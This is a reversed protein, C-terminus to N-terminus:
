FNEYIDGLDFSLSFRLTRELPNNLDSANMLYSLDINFSKAKLGGGLTFHQRNGKIESEHFYGARIAFANNYLYEAGISYTFEKFEESSGGPADGFSTFIGEVWGVNTPDNGEVIINPTNPDNDHDEYIPPTPVLLKATEFTVAVTNYDDLIFDFGAGLRLRTPLFNDDGSATYSVKPGLNSINFGARIRGNFDGYNRERGQYFGSVDVGFGNIPQIETDQVNIALDSRIYRLSVGMSYYDSLKLSYSGAITLEAPNETGLFQAQNDFLEIKGLSFYRLNAGWASREDIRNIFSGGGIFLGDVLNKLWPTYNVGFTYQSTNFAMKAANHYIASADSTTAVGLDGMGASRADSNILLIPAVTSIARSQGKVCISIMMLLILVGTKKMMNM